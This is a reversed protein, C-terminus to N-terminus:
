DWYMSWEHTIKPTISNYRKGATTTITNVYKRVKDSDSVLFTDYERVFVQFLDRLVTVFVSMIEHLSRDLELRKHRSKLSSKWKKEDIKNSLYKIRLYQNQDARNFARGLAPLLGRSINGLLKYVNELGPFVVARQEMILKVEEIHPMGGCDHAEGERNMGGNRKRWEFYHPNHIRGSELEGTQYSFVAHCNAATCFMQDCGETKNIRIGCKPCPVSDKMILQVSEVTEKKCEHCDDHIPERCDKCIVVSCMGCEWNESLYGRCDKAPCRIIFSDRNKSLNEIEAQIKLADDRMLFLETNYEERASQYELSQQSEIAAKDKIGRLAKKHERQLKDLAAQKKTRFAYFDSVKKNFKQTLDLRIKDETMKKQTAPLLSKESELINDIKKDLYQGNYFTKPVISCLFDATFPANCFMCVSYDSKTNLLSKRFCSSCCSKECSPCSIEKRRCKTFKEACVSCDTDIVPKSKSEEQHNRRHSMIAKVAKIDRAMRAKKIDGDYPLKMNVSNDAM